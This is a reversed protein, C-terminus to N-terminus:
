KSLRSTNGAFQYFVDQLIDEADEQSDVRRKIFNFLYKSYSKIAQTISNKYDDSMLAVMRLAEQM